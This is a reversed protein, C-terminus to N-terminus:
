FFIFVARDHNAELVHEAVGTQYDHKNLICLTHICNLCLSGYDVEKFYKLPNQPLIGKFCVKSIDMFYEVFHTLEVIVSQVPVKKSQSNIVSNTHVIRLLTKLGVSMGCLRHKLSIGWKM